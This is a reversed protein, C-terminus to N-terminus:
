EGQFLYAVVNKDEKDTVVYLRLQDDAPRFDFCRTILGRDNEKSMRKWLKPNRLLEPKLFEEDQPSLTFQSRINEIYADTLWTPILAKIKDSMSM